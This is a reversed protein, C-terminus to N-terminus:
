PAGPPNYSAVMSRSRSQTRFRRRQIRSCRMQGVLAPILVFPHAAVSVWAAVRRRFPPRADEAEDVVAPISGGLIQPAYSGDPAARVATGIASVATIL